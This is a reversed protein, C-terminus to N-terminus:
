SCRISLLSLARSVGEGGDSRLLGTFTAFSYSPAPIRDAVCVQSRILARSQGALRMVSHSRPLAASACAPATREQNQTVAEEPGSPQDTTGETQAPNRGM